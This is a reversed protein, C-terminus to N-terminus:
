QAKDSLRVRLTYIPKDPTGGLPLMAEDELIAQVLKQNISSRIGPLLSSAMANFLEVCSSSDESPGDNADISTISELRKRTSKRQLMGRLASQVATAATAQREVDYPLCPALCQTVSAKMATSDLCPNMAVHIASYFTTGHAGTYYPNTTPSTPQANSARRDTDVPARYPAFMALSGLLQDRDGLIDREM